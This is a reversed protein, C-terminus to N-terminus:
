PIFIGQGLFPTNDGDSDGDADAGGDDVRVAGLQWVSRMGEKVTDPVLADASTSLTCQSGITADGPTTACPVTARLGSDAVTAAGAFSPTNDKDTIRLGQVLRLEGAYDTADARLRVDTVTVDITVDAEDLPPGPTGVLVGYRVSGVSNAAEFNADPTGVTLKASSQCRPIAPRTARAAPRARQERTTCEEYAPVLSARVPTAGKPRPYYNIPIPTWDLESHQLPALQSRNTGDSNMTWLFCCGAGNGFAIRRGDPSYVGPTGSQGILVANNGNTDTSYLNGNNMQMLIRQGDPSWSPGNANVRVPTLDTGDPQVKWIGENGKNFAIWNGDPSWDPATDVRIVDSSTIRQSNQGDADMVYLKAGTEDLNSIFAIRTGDPSWAPMSNFVWGINVQTQGSGDANMVWVNGGRSFAIKTGDPSAAPSRTGSALLTYTGDSPDVAYLNGGSNVVESILVKGNEGPFTAPAASPYPSCAPM